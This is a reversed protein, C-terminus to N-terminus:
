AHTETVPSVQLSIDAKARKKRIASEVASGLLLPSFIGVLMLAYWLISMAPTAAIDAMVLCSLGLVASLTFFFATRKM